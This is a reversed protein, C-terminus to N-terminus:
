MGSNDFASTFVRANQNPALQEKSFCVIIFNGVTTLGTFDYFFRKLKRGPL